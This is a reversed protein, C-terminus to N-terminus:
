IEVPLLDEGLLVRGSYTEQVEEVMEALRAPSDADHNGGFHVLVVTGVEARAAILGLQRSSTHHRELGKGHLIEDTATSEHVLVDAGRALDIVADSPITDGSIVVSGEVSDLRYAWSDILPTHETRAATVSWDDTECLLGSRGVDVSPLHMGDPTLSEAPPEIGVWEAIDGAFFGTAGFLARVLDSTGRPGFVSLPQHRGGLWGAYVFHIFDLTHDAHAHTIFLHTIDAPPISAALLQRTVHKGCDFLVHGSELSVVHAPGARPSDWEGLYPVAGTGLVTVRVLAEKVDDLPM